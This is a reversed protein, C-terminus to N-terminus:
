RPPALVKVCDGTELHDAFVVSNDGTLRRAAGPDERGSELANATMPSLAEGTVTVCLREGRAGTRREHLDLLRVLDSYTASTAAVIGLPSAVGRLRESSDSGYLHFDPYSRMYGRAGEADVVWLVANVPRETFDRSEASAVYYTGAVPGSREFRVEYDLSTVVVQRGEVTPALPNKRLHRVVLQGLVLLAFM